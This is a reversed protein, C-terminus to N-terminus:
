NWLTRNFSYYSCVVDEPLSEIEIGYPVILARVLGIISVDGVSKLEM